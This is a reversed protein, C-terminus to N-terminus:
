PMSTAAQKLELHKSLSIPNTNLNQMYNQKQRNPSKHEEGISISAIRQKQTESNKVPTTEKPMVPKASTPESFKNRLKNIEALLEMKYKKQATISQNPDENLNPKEDGGNV